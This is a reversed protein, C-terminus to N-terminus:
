LSSFAASQALQPQLSRSGAIQIRWKKMWLLLIMLGWLHYGVNARRSLHLQLFRDIQAQEFLDGFDQKAAQLTEILLPRLPGRLWEHAPIDLGIKKRQTIAPPLKSRMLAKLVVKQNAGNMKLRSPLANAFEILRHDLFPPRVEISHAMSMRDVKMLIDDPLYYMQDFWLHARLPDGHSPPTRLIKDLARSDPVKLLQRRDADSFTGNWYVHARAPPLLSGELFRKVKYEWGIKEDSVPLWGAAWRAARLAAQPLRRMPQALADARYTLYGGFLEDAGEGSLAVTASRRTLKSLYWVPLAGADANPEDSFYAFEEIASSLDSDGNLDIEHHETDYTRAAEGIYKSEDFSRGQFSM